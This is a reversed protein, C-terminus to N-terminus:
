LQFMSSKVEDDLLDDLNLDIDDTNVIDDGQISEQVKGGDLKFSGNSNIVKFETGYKQLLEAKKGKFSLTYTKTLKTGGEPNGFSESLGIVPYDDTYQIDIRDGPTVNLMEVALANLRLKGDEFYVKAETDLDEKVTKKKVPKTDSSSVITTGIIEGTDANVTREYTITFQQKIIAM